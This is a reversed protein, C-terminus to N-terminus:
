PFCRFDFFRLKSKLRGYYISKRSANLRTERSRRDWFDAFELYVGDLMLLFTKAQEEDIVAPGIALYVALLVGSHAMRMGERKGNM